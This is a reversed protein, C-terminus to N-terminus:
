SSSETKISIANLEKRKKKVRKESSKKMDERYNRNYQYSKNNYENRNDKRKTDNSWFGNSDGTKDCESLLKFSSTVKEENSKSRYTTDDKLNNKM